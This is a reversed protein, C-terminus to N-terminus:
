YSPTYSLDYHPRWRFILTYMMDTNNTCVHVKIAQLIHYTMTHDGGLALPM